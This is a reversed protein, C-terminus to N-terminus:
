TRDRAADHGPAFSCLVEIRTKPPRGSGGRDVVVMVPWQGHLNPTLGNLRERSRHEKATRLLWGESARANAARVIVM